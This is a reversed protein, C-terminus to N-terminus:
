FELFILVFKLERNRKNRKNGPKQSGSSVKYFLLMVAFLMKVIATFYLLNSSM